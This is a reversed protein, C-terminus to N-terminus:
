ELKEMFFVGVIYSMIALTGLGSIQWFNFDKEIQLFLFTGIVFGLSSLIKYSKRKLREVKKM